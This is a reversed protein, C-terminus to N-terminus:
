LNCCICQVYFRHVYFILFLDIFSTVYNNEGTIRQAITHM